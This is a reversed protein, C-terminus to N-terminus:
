VASQVFSEEGLFHSQVLILMLTLWTDEVCGGIFTNTNGHLRQQPGIFDATKPPGGKVEPDWVIEQNTRQM